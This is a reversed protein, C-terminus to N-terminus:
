KTIKMNEDILTLKYLRLCNENHKIKSSHVKDSFLPRECIHGVFFAGTPLKLTNLLPSFYSSFQKDYSRRKKVPTPVKFGERDVPISLKTM